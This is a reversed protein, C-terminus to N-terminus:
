SEEGNLIANAKQTAAAIASVTNTGVVYTRRRDRLKACASFNRGRARRLRSPCKRCVAEPVWFTPKEPTGTNVFDEEVPPEPCNKVYPRIQLSIMRGDSENEHARLFVGSSNTCGKDSYIYGASSKHLCGKSWELESKIMLRIMGGLGDIRMIEGGDGVGEGGM